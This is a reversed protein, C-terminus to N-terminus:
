AWSLGTLVGVFCELPKIAKMKLVLAAKLDAYLRYSEQSNKGTFM